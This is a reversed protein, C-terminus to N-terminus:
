FESSQGSSSSILFDLGLGLRSSHGLLTEELAEPRISVRLSSTSRFSRAKMKTPINVFADSRADLELIQVRFSGGMKWANLSANPVLTLDVTSTHHEILIVRVFTESPLVRRDAGITLFSHQVERNRTMSREYGSIAQLADPRDEGLQQILIQPAQM